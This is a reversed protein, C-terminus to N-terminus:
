TPEVTVVLEVVSCVAVKVTLLELAMRKSILFTEPPALRMLTSLTWIPSKEDGVGVGVGVALSCRVIPFGLLATVL